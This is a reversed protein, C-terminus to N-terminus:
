EPPKYEDAYRWVFLVSPKGKSEQSWQLWEAETEVPGVEYPFFVNRSYIPGYQLMAKKLLSRCANRGMEGGGAHVFYDRMSMGARESHSLAAGRRDFFRSQFMSIYNTGTQNVMVEYNKVIQTPFENEIKWVKSYVELVTAEPTKHTLSCASPLSLALICCLLHSTQFSQNSLILIM